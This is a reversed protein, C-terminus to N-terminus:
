RPQGRHASSASLGRRSLEDLVRPLAAVTREWSGEASYADSDHLLLVDGDSVDRTVEEAISRPTARASWDHGWRSWLLPRWRRRVIPLSCASFIGYPPRHLVPAHGTAVAITDAARDLDDRVQAPALRLLNRHRRCHLAIEHGAAAIEAALRPRREVQEGVLFFTASANADRLIELVAETGQTHPGDDFTLAVGQAGDLRRPIGLAHAVPPFVPALSPLAHVAFGAAVVAGALRAAV